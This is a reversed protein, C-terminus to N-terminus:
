CPTATRRARAAIECGVVGNAGPGNDIVVPQSWTETFKQGLTRALLDSPGGAALPVIIRIPKSPYLTQGYACLPMALLTSATALHWLKLVNKSRHGVCNSLKM